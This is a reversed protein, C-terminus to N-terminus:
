RERLRLFLFMPLRQWRAESPDMSVIDERQRPERLAEILLGADEFARAYDELAYCWGHFTMRMGAREFTAELPRRGFYSGTIVFRADAERREFRGADAVPHTVCACLRGDPRLVRAAEHLAGPMDEIDMLSNYAVVLDFTADSFPLSAADALVYEGDPDASSAADLLTPSSDVGTVRHGRDQLDRAVRGEGCGLELTAGGVPPVLEFFRPSYDWYADHGPTRAWAIWGRAEEEWSM